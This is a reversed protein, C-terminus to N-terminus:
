DNFGLIVVKLGFSVGIGSVSCMSWGSHYVASADSSTGVASAAALMAVFCTAARIAWRTRESIDWRAM